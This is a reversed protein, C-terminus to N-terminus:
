TGPGHEGPTTGRGGTESGGPAEAFGWNRGGMLRHAPGPTHTNVCPCSTRILAGGQLGLPSAEGQLLRHRETQSGPTGSSYRHAHAVCSQASLEPPSLFFSSFSPPTSLLFSFIYFNLHGGFLSSFILPPATVRPSVTLLPSSNLLGVRAGVIGHTHTLGSM